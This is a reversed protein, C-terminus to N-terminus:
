FGGPGSNCSCESRAGEGCADGDGQYEWCCRSGATCLWIGNEKDCIMDCYEGFLEEAATDTGAAPVMVLGLFALAVFWRKLTM